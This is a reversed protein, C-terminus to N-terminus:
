CLLQAAGLTRGALLCETDPEGEVGTSKRCDPKTAGVPARWTLKTRRLHHKTQKFCACRSPRQILPQPAEMGGQLFLLQSRPGKLPAPAPATCNQARAPCPLM